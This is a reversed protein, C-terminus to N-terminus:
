CYMSLFISDFNSLIMFSSVFILNITYHILEVIVCKITSGICKINSTHISYRNSWNQIINVVM